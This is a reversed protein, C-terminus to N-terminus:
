ITADVSCLDISAVPRFKRKFSDLGEGESGGLNLFKIGQKSLTECSKFILFESLGPIQINCFDVYVNATRQKANSIDWLSVAQLTGGTFVMLGSLGSSKEMSQSFLNDYPAYLLEYEERTKANLSAWRHLLNELARSHSIADFPTVQPDLDSVQKVAYRLRKYKSGELASVADTSLLHLPYKWDLVDEERRQLTVHREDTQVTNETLSGSAKVRALRIKDDSTPITALLDSTLDVQRSGMQPFILVQDVVNPHRCILLFADDREYLWLGRRGTFQYYTPSTLYSDVDDNTALLENLRSLNRETIRTIGPLSELESDWSADTPKELLPTQYPFSM